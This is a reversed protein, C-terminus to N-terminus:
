WQSLRRTLLRLYNDAGRTCPDTNKFVPSSDWSVMDHNWDLDSIAVLTFSPCGTTQATEFIKQGEGSFTNLYIIPVNAEFKPFFINNERKNCLHVYSSEGAKKKSLPAM